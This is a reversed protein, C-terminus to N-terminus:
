VPRIPPKAPVSAIASQGITSVGLLTLLETPLRPLEAIATGWPTQHLVIGLAVLYGFATTTQLLLQQVAGIEVRDQEGVQRGKVTDALLEFTTSAIAAPKATMEVGTATTVFPSSRVCMRGVHSSRAHWSEMAVGPPAPPPPATAHTMEVVRNLTFGGLVIGALVWISADIKVFLQVTEVGPKWAFANLFAGAMLASSLLVFWVYSILNQLNGRNYDDLLVFWPTVGLAATFAVVAGGCSAWALLRLVAAAGMAGSALVVAAGTLALFLLALMLRSRQSLM